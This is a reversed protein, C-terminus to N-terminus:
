VNRREGSDASGARGTLIEAVSPPAQARGTVGVSVTSAAEPMSDTEAGRSDEVRAAAVVRAAEPLLPHDVIQGYTYLADRLHQRDLEGTALLLALEDARREFGMGRLRDAGSDDIRAGASILARQPQRASEAARLQDWASVPVPLGAQLTDLIQERLARRASFAGEVGAAVRAAADAARALRLCTARIETDPVTEAQRLLEESGAMTLRDVLGVAPTDLDILTTGAVIGEAVATGADLVTHLEESTTTSSAVASLRLKMRQTVRTGFEALARAPDPDGELATLAERDRPSLISDWTWPLVVESPLYLGAPLWGRGETSNLVVIPGVPTRGVAVAWEVGPASEAVAALVAALLNRALVLDDDRDEGVVLAPEAYKSKAARAAAVFPGTPLASPRSRAMEPGGHPAATAPLSGGAAAVTGPPLPGPGAPASPAVVPPALPVAAGGAGPDGGPSVTVEPSSMAPPLGVGVAPGASAAPAVPPSVPPGAPAVPAMPGPQPGDASPREDRGPGSPGDPRDPGAPGPPGPSPPPSVPDTPGHPGPASPPPAAGVEDGARGINRGGDHEAAELQQAAALLNDRTQEHHAALREAKEHRKIYYDNLAARVPDAITGYSSAFGALWAEPIEGWKRIDAARLEHQRASARLQEPEVDMYPM